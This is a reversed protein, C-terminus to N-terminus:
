DIDSDLIIYDGVTAIIGDIKLKGTSQKKIIPSSVVSDKIIEQASTVFSTFVLLFFALAFRNNIFKMPTKNIPM